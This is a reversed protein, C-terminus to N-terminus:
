GGSALGASARALVYAAEKRMFRLEDASPEGPGFRLETYLKMWEKAEPLSAFAKEPYMGARHVLDDELRLLLRALAERPQERHRLRLWYLYLGCLLILASLAGALPGLWGLSAEFDFEYELIYLAWYANLRDYLDGFIEPMWGSDGQVPTPDLTVWGREATYVELWAHADSSHVTLVNGNSPPRVRFGVVLRSPIGAARFVLAMSSAFLECHGKKTEFLFREVPHSKGSSGEMAALDYELGADRFWARVRQFKEEDTTAGATIKRALADLGGLARAPFRLSPPSPGAPAAGLSDKTFSDLEVRYRVRRARSGSALWEGGEYRLAGLDPDGTLHGAGYPVPLVDAPLPQRLIEVTANGTAKVPSPIRAMPRWVDATFEELVQGRLLYFPVVKEWPQGEERFIWAVPRSDQSAWYLISQRLSVNDSYGTTTGGGGSWRSRPLLPFILLSSLFIVFSVALVAGVFSPRLPRALSEPDRARFNRELFAISLSLSSLVVFLFILVFMYAEPALIAALVLEILGLGIRWYRYLPEDGALWLLAHVPIIARAILTGTPEAGAIAYGGVVLAALIPLLFFDRLRFGAALALLGTLAPAVFLAREVDPALWLAFLGIVECALATGPGTRRLTFNIKM